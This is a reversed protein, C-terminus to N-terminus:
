FRFSGCRCMKYNKKFFTVQMLLWRSYTFIVPPCVVANPCVLPFFACEGAWGGLGRESERLRLRYARFCWSWQSTLMYKLWFHKSCNWYTRWWWCMEYLFLEVDKIIASIYILVDLIWYILTCEFKLRVQKCSEISGNTKM